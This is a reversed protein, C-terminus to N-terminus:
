TLIAMVIYDPRRCVGHIVGLYDPCTEGAVIAGDCRALVRRVDRAAVITVIAVGGSRPNRRIEIVDVDGAIADAAVVARIRSALVRGM